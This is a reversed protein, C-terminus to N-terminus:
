RSNVLEPGLCLLLEEFHKENMQGGVPLTRGKRADFLVIGIRTNLRRERSDSSFLRNLEVSVSDWQSLHQFPLLFLFHSKRIARNFRTFVAGSYNTFKKAAAPDLVAFGRGAVCFHTTWSVCELGWDFGELASEKFSFGKRNALLNSRLQKSFERVMDSDADNAPRVRHSASSKTATGTVTATVTATNATTGTKTGPPVTTGYLTGMIRLKEDYERRRTADSLVAYAGNIQAMQLSLVSKEAETSNSNRDPHCERALRRYALKIFEPSAGPDLGLIAYYDQL